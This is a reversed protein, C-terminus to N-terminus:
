HPEKQGQPAEAAPRRGMSDGLAPELQQRSAIGLKAYSSTLHAEVTRLTIFLQEAIERNTRGAAALQAVRLESPTLADRGRLADRRPRAGAITLEERARKALRLGGLQHALDLGQALHQRAEARQGARRLAAGLDTIARAHELPATSQGLAAVAERLLTLGREDGHAIGAARLAVGIARPAGWHRALDVEVDALAVARERDGVHALSVAASSRWPHMAPNRVAWAEAREGSAVLDEIAASHDGAAAHLRGRALLLPTTAWAYPLDGNLGRQALESRAADLDGREVLAEVLFAVSIPTLRIETGGITAGRASALAESVAGRRLCV